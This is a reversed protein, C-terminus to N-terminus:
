SSQPVQTMQAIAPGLRTFHKPNLTFLADVEAKLAAQAILADFIGGGPLKLAVMCAIAAQYDHQDLSVVQLYHLLDAIVIEADSPSMRPQIPLRTLISYTEALSHTSLYGEVQGREASQLQPFCTPHEPHQTLSAAVLVSTDFLIKM